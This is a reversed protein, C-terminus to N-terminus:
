VGFWFGVLARFGGVKSKSGLDVRQGAMQKVLRDEFISRVLNAAQM